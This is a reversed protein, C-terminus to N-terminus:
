QLRVIFIKSNSENIIEKIGESNTRPDVSFVIIGLKWCAYFYYVIEPTNPMLLTISDGKELGFDLLHNAYINVKEKFEDYSIQSGFYTL